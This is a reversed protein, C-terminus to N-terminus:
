SHLSAPRGQYVITSSKASSLSGNELDNKTDEVESLDPYMRGIIKARASKPHPLPEPKPFCTGRPGASCDRRIRFGSNQCASAIKGRMYEYVNGKTDRGDMQLKDILSVSKGLLNLTPITFHANGMYHAYTIANYCRKRIATRTQL